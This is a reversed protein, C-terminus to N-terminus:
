NMEWECQERWIVAAVGIAAAWAVEPREGSNLGIDWSKSKFLSAM